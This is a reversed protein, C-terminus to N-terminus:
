RAGAFHIQSGDCRVHRVSRATGCPLPGAPRAPARRDAPDGGVAPVPERDVAPAHLPPRRRAVRAVEVGVRDVQLREQLGALVHDAHLHQEVAVAVARPRAALRPQDEIEVDFRRACRLLDDGVLAPLAISSRACRGPCYLRQNRRANCSSNSARSRGAPQSVPPNGVRRRTPDRRLLDCQGGSLPGRAAGIAKTPRCRPGCRAPLRTAACAASEASARSRRIAPSPAPASPGRAISARGPRSTRHACAPNTRTPCARRDGHRAAVARPFQRRRRLRVLADLRRELERLLDDAERTEADLRRRARDDFQHRLFAVVRLLRAPEVGDSRAPRPEDAAFADVLELREVVLREAPELEM